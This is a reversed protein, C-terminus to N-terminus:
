ALFVDGVYSCIITNHPFLAILVEVIFLLVFLLFYRLNFRVTIKM